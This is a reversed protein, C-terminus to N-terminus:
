GKSQASCAKSQLVLPISGRAPLGPDQGADREAHGEGAPTRPNGASGSLGPRPQASYNALAMPDSPLHTEPLTGLLAPM